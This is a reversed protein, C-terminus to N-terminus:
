CVRSTGGITVITRLTSYTCDIAHSNTLQRRVGTSDSSQLGIIFVERQIRCVKWQPMCAGLYWLPTELDDEQIILQLSLFHGQDFTPWLTEWMMSVLCLFM